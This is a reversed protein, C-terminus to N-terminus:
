RHTGGAARMQQHLEVLDRAEAEDLRRTVLGTHLLVWDGVHVEDGELLLIALSARREGEATEVIAVTSDDPDIAVVRAPAEVCM